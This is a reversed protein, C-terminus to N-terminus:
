GRLVTNLQGIFEVPNEHQIINRGFAFGKVGAAVATKAISLMDPGKEGGAMIVPVPCGQVVQEFQETYFVKMVDAGIEAGIRAGSRQVDLEHLRSYDGALIEVIVPISLSHYYDISKAAQQMSGYDNDGLILMMLVADAGL